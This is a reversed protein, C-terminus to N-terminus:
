HLDDVGGNINYARYRQERLVSPRFALWARREVIPYRVIKYVVM